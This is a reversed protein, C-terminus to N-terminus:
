RDLIRYSAPSIGFASARGYLIMSAGVKFKSKDPNPVCLAGRGLMGFPIGRLTPRACQIGARSWSANEWGDVEVTMSTDSGLVGNFVWPLGSSFTAWAFGFYVISMLPVRVYWRVSASGTQMVAAIKPNNLSWGFNGIGVFFVVYFIGTSIALWRACVVTLQSPVFNSVFLSLMGLVAFALMGVAATANLFRATKSRGAWADEAGYTALM